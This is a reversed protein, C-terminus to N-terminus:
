VNRTETFGIETVDGTIPDVLKGKVTLTIEATFDRLELGLTAPPAKPPDNSNTNLM